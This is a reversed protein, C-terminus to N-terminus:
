IIIKECNETNTEIKLASRERLRYANILQAMERITPYKFIDILGLEVDLAQYVRSTLITAKLSHGGLEFFDADISITGAAAALLESWIDVLKKEIENTPAIYKKGTLEPGPLANIDIKGNANLPIKTVGFFYSPIMYGPLDESLIKKIKAANLSDGGAAPIGAPELRSEGNMVIYACLYKERDAGERELAVAEKIGAIHLLRSEIEGPEIRFGRIKVQQDIRGLFEVAGDTLRRALDGTRYKLNGFKEASLEPKNLYGRAIGAGAIYL